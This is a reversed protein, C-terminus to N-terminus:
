IASNLTSTVKTFASQISTGLTTMAGLAAVGVLLAVLAYEILNQGSDEHAFRQAVNMLKKMIKELSGLIRALTSRM